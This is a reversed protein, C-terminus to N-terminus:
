GRASSGGTPEADMTEAMARSVPSIVDDGGVQPMAIAVIQEFGLGFWQGSTSGRALGPESFWPVEDVQTLRAGAEYAEPMDVGCRIVVPELGEGTYTATHDPEQRAAEGTPETRQWDGMTEPLATLFGECVRAAAPDNRSATAPVTSLPFAGPQPAGEGEQPATAVAQGVTDLMSGIDGETTVAVVPSSGVSYWTRLNSGPTADSVLLWTAGGEDTTSSLVTYQDPAYVGCRVTLEAGSANRYAVAGVPAPATIEVRQFGSAEGPLSGAIDECAASEALPADVPGMSVPSYTQRDGAIKAAAIVAVIFFVAVVIALVIQFRPTSNAPPQDTM